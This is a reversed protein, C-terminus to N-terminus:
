PVVGASNRRCFKIFTSSCLYEIAGIDPKGDRVEEEVLIGNDIAPSDPGAPYYCNEDIGDPLIILPDNKINDEMTYSYPLPISFSSRYGAIINNRLTVYLVKNENSINVAAYQEKEGPNFFINNALTIYKVFLGQSQGVLQVPAPFNGVVTNNYISINEAGGGEMPAIRVFTHDNVTGGYAINHHIKVDSVAGDGPWVAIGFGSPNEFYNHCIEVNSLGAEINIYQSPTRRRNWPTETKQDMRKIKVALEESTREKQIISCHHVKLSYDGHRNEGAQSNAFSFWTNARVNFVECGDYANILCLSSAKDWYLSDYVKIDCNYVKLNRAWGGGYQSIGEGYRSISNDITIDHFQSDKIGSYYLAATSWTQMDAGGCDTLTLHSLRINENYDAPDEHKTGGNALVQLGTFDIQNFRIDSVTINDRGRISIGTSLQKENGEISFGEIIQNGKVGKDISHLTLGYHVTGSYSLVTKDQGPGKVSVGPAIKSVSTEHFTGKGLLILDGTQKVRSAAFSLSKWPAEETGDGADDNGSPTVHWVKGTLEPKPIIKLTVEASPEPRCMKDIGACGSFLLVAASFLFM